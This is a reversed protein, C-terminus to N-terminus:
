GAMVMNVLLNHGWSACMKQVSGPIMIGGKGQAAQELTQGNKWYLFRKRSQLRVESACKSATEDWGIM